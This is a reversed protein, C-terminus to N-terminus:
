SESGILFFPRHFGKRQTYLGKIGQVKGRRKHKRDLRLVFRSYFPGLIRTATLFVTSQNGLEITADARPIWPKMPM